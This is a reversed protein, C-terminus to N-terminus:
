GRTKNLNSFNGWLQSHELQYRISDESDSCNFSFEKTRKIPGMKLETVLEHSGASVLTDVEFGKFPFSGLSEGDLILNVKTLSLPDNGGGFSIYCSLIELNIAAMLM